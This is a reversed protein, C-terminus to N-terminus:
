KLLFRESSVKAERVMDAKVEDMKDMDWEDFSLGFMELVEGGRKIDDQIQGLYAMVNEIQQRTIDQFQLSEVIADLDKQVEKANEQLLGTIDVMHRSAMDLKQILLTANESAKQFEEVAERHRDREQYYCGLNYHAEANSKPSRLQFGLKKVDEDSLATWSKDSGGFTFFGVLNSVSSCGCLILCVLIIASGIVATKGTMGQTGM